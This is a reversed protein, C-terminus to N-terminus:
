QHLFDFMFVHFQDVAISMPLKSYHHYLGYDLKAQLSILFTNEKPLILEQLDNVEVKLRNGSCIRRTIDLSPQLLQLVNESKFAFLVTSDSVEIAQIQSVKRVLIVNTSMRYRSPRHEMITLPTSPPANPHTAPLASAAPQKHLYLCSPMILRHFPVRLHFM